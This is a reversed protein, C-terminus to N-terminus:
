FEDDDDDDDDTLGYLSQTSFQLWKNGEELLFRLVSTVAGLAIVVLEPNVDKLFDAEPATTEWWPLDSQGWARGRGDWEDQRALRADRALSAVVRQVADTAGATTGIDVADNTDLFGILWDAAARDDDPINEYRNDSTVKTGRMDVHVDFCTPFCVWSM